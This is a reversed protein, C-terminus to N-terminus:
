ARKKLSAILNIIATILSISNAILIVYEINDSGKLLINRCIFFTSTLIYLKKITLKSIKLFFTSFIKKSVKRTNFVLNCKQFHNYIM